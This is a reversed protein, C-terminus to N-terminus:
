GSKHPDSKLEIRFKYLSVSGSTTTNVGSLYGIKVGCSRKLKTSWCSTYYFNRRTTPGRFNSGKSSKFIEGRILLVATFSFYTIQTLFEHPSSGWVSSNCHFRDITTVTYHLWRYIGAM